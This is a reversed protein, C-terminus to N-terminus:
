ISYGTVVHTNCHPISKNILCRDIETRQTGLELKCPNKRLGECMVRLCQAIVKQHIKKEEIWFRKDKIKPDLLFDRFSLHLVRVPIDHDEPINLVSRFSNLRSSVDRAGADLLRALANVSLPTALLIIVGIIDKFEQALQKSEWEDQGTLLQMLIPLYTNDMKTVYNIQNNLIATLRTEPNWKEDGVFRCITAASIFLPKTREVLVQISDNGPWSEPLSHIQRIYSLRDKLFLTIDRSIFKEAIEHLILNQHGENGIKQFGLHIPSEPRSTLFIRLHISTPKQLQPLLELIVRIDDQRDCEDLADIVLVMKIASQNQCLTHIPQLLLKNFQERLSKIPIDPDDNIAKLVCPELQPTATILQRTITSFFRNANGRDGGGRKFFFSAGLKGEEKFMTAVTRSITSKGTGAMGNLWFIDQGQDSSEWEKIQQILEARTGDLCRDEHQNMISDFSAGEAIRLNSRDLKQDVQQVLMIAEDIRDLMVEASKRHQLHENQQVWHHLAQEDNKISSEIQIIPHNSAAPVSEIM